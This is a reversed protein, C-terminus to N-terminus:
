KEVLQEVELGGLTLIQKVNPPKFTSNIEVSPLNPTSNIATNSPNPPNVALLATKVSVPQWSAYYYNNSITCIATIINRQRTTICENQRIDISWGFYSDYSQLLVSFIKNDTPERHQYAYVGKRGHVGACIPAPLLLFAGPIWQKHILRCWVLISETLRM